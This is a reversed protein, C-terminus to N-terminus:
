EDAFYYRQSDWGSFFDNTPGVLEDQAGTIDSEMILFGLPQERAIKRFVEAFLEARKEEDLTSSAQSYLEPINSEPVYGYYNTDGRKKFFTASSSPTLPYTNLGINVSMDWPNQGVSVDRPGGNFRSGWPYSEGEPPSNAAYKLQFTRGTVTKVEATIGLNNQLNQAILEALTQNTQSASSAYLSLTVPDGDPGVLTDGDYEYPRDEIGREMRKRAPEPGYLDGTGFRLGDVAEESYWKSFRPQMTYAPQAYGRYLNEALANKDIACAFAQRVPIERFPEWGNARMNYAL